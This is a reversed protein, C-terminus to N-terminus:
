YNSRWVKSFRRDDSGGSKAVYFDWRNGHERQHTPVAAKGHRCQIAEVLNATRCFEQITARSVDENMDALLLVRDGEEHWDQIATALDNLM